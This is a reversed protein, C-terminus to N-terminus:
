SSSPNAPSPPNSSGARRILERSLILEAVFREWAYRLGARGDLILGKVFLTHVLVAFPAIVILKRIRAPVSLSRPDRVRLKEAEQVMYRKQREIFARFNKRDDHIIPARLAGTEGDVAIRQTHGDQWFSAHQTAALVIRPPYLSARLSKGNVAYRFSAVYARIDPPPELADLERLFDDPLFYDADLALFWPTQVQQLGFTWQKAHEDFVRQLVRVNPFRRAIEVTADTSFSDVVVVERAWTLQGLTRALNPEEDRTLILPTIQDLM